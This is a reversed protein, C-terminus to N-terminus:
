DELLLDPEACQESILGRAADRLQVAAAFRDSRQAPMLPVSIRMQVRGRRPLWEGDPLITRTGRLTIAIVPLGVNVSAVFAGLHFTRLGPEATFTGEPFFICPPGNQVVTTLHQAAEVSARADFREVFQTDLRRLLNGILPVQALERKAVFRCPIALAATLYLADLYSSHNVVLIQRTGLHESGAISFPLGSWRLLARAAHHVLWWRRPARWPMLLLLSICSALIGLLLIFRAAFLLQAIRQRLDRLSTALTAMLLRLLPGPRNRRPFSRYDQSEYLERCAGRRIKGSSTKLITHPAVLVIEDAPEGLLEVIRQAIQQEIQERQARPEIATEAMVIVRETGAGRLSSGFVAVCGKRIGEIASAAAELEEPHIHRGARIIIDKIRGTIYLEGAARYARDGSDCWGDHRLAATAAANDFYGQTASPGRFELRGEQREGLPRGADDVIRVEHQALPVGSSAFRLPRKAAATAPQALGAATFADRDIIDILPGREMPPIALGVACEALGYVPTLTTPRLGYPAFRQQFRELTDPMVFEAGNAAMRWSRLDLGVLEADTIRKLCLEYAFNPAASLTGGYRDITQLWRVPRRLFSLPSMVVLPLGFYLTGLWAGILGMDHYLPLWSVFVDTASVKLAAGLATINALLNAHSLVVGKPQGTSGSTYQLLATSEARAAARAPMAALARLEANTLVKRLAPSQAGLLTAVRQLESVTILAVSRCNRLIGAHRKIHDELQSARAPPYLPVPIAGALLIGFFATFYDVSTPLMLAVADRPQVGLQQLGGAVACAENWLRQYTLAEESQDGCVTIPVALPHRECHWALVQDLTSVSSPPAGWANSIVAAAPRVAPQLQAAVGSATLSGAIDRLTGAAAFLPQPLAIDFHTEIRRFLEARTLSDLGLEGDLTSDLTVRRPRDSTHELSGLLDRTVDLLETEQSDTSSSM